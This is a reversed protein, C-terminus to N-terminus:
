FGIQKRLKHYLGTKIEHSDHRPVYIVYNKERHAYIDHAKGNRALYWGKQTAIRKLESWKM